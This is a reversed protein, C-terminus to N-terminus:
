KGYSELIGRGFLYKNSEVPQPLAKPSSLDDTYYDGITSKTLAVFPLETLEPPKVGAAVADAMAVAYYGWVSVLADIEGIWQPNDRLQKLATESGGEGIVVSTKDRGAEAIARWGGSATDDNVSSFIINQDKPINQLAAQVAAFSSDLTNGGDVVIANAAIRTTSEKFDDASIKTFGPVKDAVTLYTYRVTDNVEVGGRASNALLITTNSGNWGNKTAYDAALQGAATGLNKNIVNLWPCGDVPVNLAICKAGARDFVTFLSKGIAKDPSYEIAVDPKDQVMLQANQLTTEAAGKNDYLKADIGAAAASKKVATTIPAFLPSSDAYNAYAIKLDKKAGGGETQAGTGSGGCAATVLLLATSATLAGWRRGNRNM